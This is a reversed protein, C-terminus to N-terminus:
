TIEKICIGYVHRMLKRKLVYAPDKKTFYSKVDEIVKRGKSDKYVFDAIYTAKKESRMNDTAEKAPILEYPVNRRLDSIFGKDEMKKLELYRELEKKSDFSMGNYELKINQYCYKNQM